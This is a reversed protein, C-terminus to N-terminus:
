ILWYIGKLNRKHKLSNTNLEERLFVILQREGVFAGQIQNDGRDCDWGMSGSDRAQIFALDGLEERGRECNM